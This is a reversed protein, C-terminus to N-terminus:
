VGLDVSTGATDVLTPTASVTKDGLFRRAAWHYPPCVVLLGILWSLDVDSLQRAIPGTFMETSIFPVEVAVGIVYVACAPM